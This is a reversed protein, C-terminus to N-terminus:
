TSLILEHKKTTYTSLYLYPLSSILTSVRIITKSVDICGLGQTRRVYFVPLGVIVADLMPNTAKRTTYVHVVYRHRM